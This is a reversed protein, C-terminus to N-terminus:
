GEDGAPQEGLDQRETDVEEAPEQAGPVSPDAEKSEWDDGVQEIEEELRESREEMEEVVPETQEIAERMDAEAERSDEHPHESM